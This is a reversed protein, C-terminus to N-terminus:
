IFSPGPATGMMQIGDVIFKRRDEIVGIKIAADGLTFLGNLTRWSKFAGNSDLYLPKGIDQDDFASESSHMEVIKFLNIPDGASVAVTSNVAAVAWFKQEMNANAKDAKYVRGRTEGDIAFRVLKTVNADFAEGAIGIKWVQKTKPVSVLDVILHGGDVVGVEMYEDNPLFNVSSKLVIIGPNRPDVVVISNHAIGLGTLKFLGSTVVDGIQGIEINQLAIGICRSTSLNNSTNCLVIANPMSPHLAVARGKPIIAGAANFMQMRTLTKADDLETILNYEKAVGSKYQHFVLEANSDVYVQNKDLDGVLPGPTFNIAKLNYIKNTINVSGLVDLLLDADFSLLKVPGYIDSVSIISGANYATQLSPVDFGGTVAAAKFTIRFKLKSNNAIDKLVRIRGVPEGQTEEYDIGVDQYIGDIYVELQGRGPKYTQILGGAKSNPPISILTGAAWGTASIIMEEYYAASMGQTLFPRQDELIEISSQLIGGVGDGQVVIKALKMYASPLFNQYEAIALAKTTEKPGYFFNVVNSDTIYVTFVQWQSGLTLAQSDSIFKSQIDITTGTFQCPEEMDIWASIRQGTYDILTGPAINLQKTTPLLSVRLLETFTLDGLGIFGSRNPLTWTCNATLPQKTILGKFLSTRDELSFDRAEVGGQDSIKFATRGQDNDVRFYTSDNNNGLELAWNNTKGYFTNFRATYGLGTKNIVFADNDSTQTITLRGVLEDTTNRLSRDIATQTNAQSNNKVIGSNLIRYDQLLPDTWGIQGGNYDVGILIRTEPGSNTDRFEVEDGTKFFKIENLSVSVQTAGVLANSSISYQNGFSIATADHANELKEIHSLLQDFQEAIDGTVSPFLITYLNQVQGHLQTHDGQLAAIANDLVLKDVNDLPTFSLKSKAVTGNTLVGGDITNPMLPHATALDKAVHQNITLITGVANNLDLGTGTFGALRNIQLGDILLGSLLNIEAETTIINQLDRWRIIGAM